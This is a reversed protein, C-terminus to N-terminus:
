SSHRMTYSGEHMEHLCGDRRDGELCIDEDNEITTEEVKRDMAIQQANFYRMNPLAFVVNVFLDSICHVKIDLPCM